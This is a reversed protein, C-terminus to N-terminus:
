GGIGVLRSTPTHRLLVERLLCLRTCFVFCYFDVFSIDTVELEFSACGWKASNNEGFCWGLGLIQSQQILVNKGM